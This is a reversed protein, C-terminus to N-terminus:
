KKQKEYREAVRKWNVVKWINKVFEARVNKYQLYYAHEWVDICLLPILGQSEVLDQNFTTTIVLQNKGKDLALWGWGSGQVAITKASLQEVLNEFSGFEKEILTLFEGQPKQGGGESQPALSEWFFTHNLHGGANFQITRMLVVMASLDSCCQMSEYKELAANLNNVYTQHHKGHHIELIEKSIVPELADYAYPLKPLEIKEMNVELEVQLFTSLM